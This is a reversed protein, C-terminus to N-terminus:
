KAFILDFVHRWTSWQMVDSAPQKGFVVYGVVLGAYLAIIFLVPVILKRLILFTIRAWKPMSGGGNKTEMEM